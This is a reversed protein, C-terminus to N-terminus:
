AKGLGLQGALFETLCATVGDPCVFSSTPEWSHAGGAAWNVKFYLEGGDLKVAGISKVEHGGGGAAGPGAPSLQWRRATGPAVPGGHRPPPLVPTRAPTGYYPPSLVPPRVPTGYYPPSLVPTPAPTGPSSSGEPTSDVLVVSCQRQAPPTRPPSGERARKPHPTCGAFSM